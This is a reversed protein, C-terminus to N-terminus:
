NPAPLRDHNVHAIVRETQTSLYTERSARDYAESLAATNRLMQSASTAMSVVHFISYSEDTNVM